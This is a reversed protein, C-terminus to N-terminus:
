LHLLSQLTSHIESQSPILFRNDSNFLPPARVFFSLWSPLANNRATTCTRIIRPFNTVASQGCWEVITKAFSRAEDSDRWERGNEKKKGPRLKRAVWWEDINMGREEARVCLGNRPYISEAQALAPRPCVAGGNTRDHTRAIWSGANPASRISTDHFVLLSRGGPSTEQFIKEGPSRHFKSTSSHALIKRAVRHIKLLFNWPSASRYATAESLFSCVNVNRDYPFPIEPIFNSRALVLEVTSYRLVNSSRDEHPQRTVIKKTSYGLHGHKHIQWDPEHFNVLNQCIRWFTLEVSFADMTIMAATAVVTRGVVLSDDIDM